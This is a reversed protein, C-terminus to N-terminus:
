NLDLRRKRGHMDTIEISQLSDCILLSRASQSLFSAGYYFERKQMKGNKYKIVAYTDTADVTKSTSHNALKFVKLVGRNQGALFLPKNDGGTIKVFAKGNGPIYLGGQDITKAVFNGKGDGALLLGNLADYRGVSVETGFDNASMAVDLNGDGDFDEVVMGNIVSLQAQAPLPLLEFRGNGLNKLLSSNLNNVELRLAGKIDGATLVKDFTAGAFSRYTQFKARMSIMQKILDDRTHAPYEKKGGAEDQLFLSPIADYNGDTNFDAAYIKAPYQHSVRYFTNQGANGMIYDIDGDNDFDGPAISNWWGTQGSIGSGATINRFVGKENEIITVDMWEGALVLDPWGDNNFDTWLADCVLGINTLATAVRPTVDTFKILGNKSDNRYIFSSVPKPYNWPEVRGAVFLDLDGDKDYDAARVCSKSTFNKPIGSIDLDFNGKGDNIFFKDQYANTQPANEYSGSTIYLDLDGDGDADFLLLGMDESPKTKNSAAPMIEKSIFSGDRQQLLLTPSYSFSGGCVLDDLGNKDVDGVALGPGYESLKHPLLKQINFDPFDIEKHQYPIQLSDTMDTFVPNAVSVIDAFSYALAADKIDATILQDASVNRLIQMRHNPWKIVLSDIRNTKGLGFHAMNQVTSLFGRYPSNEYVQQKGNDYYIEAWAGIGNRNLGDGRFKIQLYHHSEKSNNGWTNKYVFAEDNINNIVFDLDGDNDLDGYAAGNSFCPESLGWEVSKDTFSLDGNNRFAYNHLKVEPIQELIDEKLAISKANARYTMFDRDTIDKPFGNTIIIDRFGDNDFDTVMPAWSWDTEAVGAYFAIDSFVPVGSSDRNMVPQGQNIQLTNRTYQYEYGYADNNMYTQYSNAPMMMKKRVNTAPLMDVAIIDPLGDNNIDAVDNGMASYSTHKFSQGARNTFTGNKNNIWLLDNTLFDNTVYIDKWGDKNIDAIALGLGFGEISIGAEASVNTFVPHGAATDRDNRYLRDTTPSSGDTIKRKYQNPYLDGQAMKNTLVYLDLDGDNDYDFFAANTSYGTDAVHYSEAEDVFSPVGDSNLGQNIFLMNARKAPDKKISACIYIDMLGDSNIDVTAVGTNWRDKAEVKALATVDRFQMHGKNLYLKNGVQNGTFFVDQWGDNNFDSIAVGGGNYVYELDLINISDNESIANNFHIGTKGGDLREFIKKSTCSFFLFAVVAVLITKMM